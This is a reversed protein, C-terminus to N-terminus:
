EFRTITFRGYKPRFDGIGIYRGAHELIQKVVDKAIQDDQIEITFELTWDKLMPRLREVGSNNVRVLRRDIVIKGQEVLKEPTGKLGHPIFDPSVFVASRFLDKYTKKGRGPIIFSTAAKIMAGELHTAPQVIGKLDDWYLASKWELSYDKKGSRKKASEEIEDAFRYRHQLLPSIGQIKVSIKEM